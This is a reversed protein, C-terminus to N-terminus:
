LYVLPITANKAGDWMQMEKRLSSKPAGQCTVLFTRGCPYAQGMKTDFVLMPTKTVSDEGFIQKLSEIARSIGSEYVTSYILMNGGAPDALYLRYASSQNPYEM